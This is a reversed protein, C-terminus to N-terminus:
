HQTKKNDKESKKIKTINQLEEVKIKQEDISTIHNFPFIFDYEKMNPNNADKREIDLEYEINKKNKIKSM